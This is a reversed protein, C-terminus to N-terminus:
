IFWPEVFVACLFQSFVFLLFNLSFYVLLSHPLNSSSSFFVCVDPWRLSLFYNFSDFISVYCFDLTIMSRFLISVFSCMFDVMSSVMFCCFCFLFLVFYLSFFLFSTFSIYYNLKSIRIQDEFASCFRVGSKDLGYM